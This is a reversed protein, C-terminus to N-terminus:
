PFCPLKICLFRQTGATWRACHGLNPKRVSCFKNWCLAPCSSTGRSVTSARYRQNTGLSAFPYPLTDTAHVHIRPVAPHLAPNKQRELGRRQGTSGWGKPCILTAAVPPEVFAFIQENGSVCDRDSAWCNPRYKETELRHRKPPEEEPFGWYFVFGFRLRRVRLCRGRFHLRNGIFGCLCVAVLAFCSWRWTSVLSLVVEGLCKFCLVCCGDREERTQQRKKFFLCFLFHMFPPAPPM